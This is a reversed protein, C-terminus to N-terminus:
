KRKSEAPLAPSHQASGLDAISSPTSAPMTFIVRGQECVTLGGSLPQNRPAAASLGCEDTKVSPAFQNPFATQVIQGTKSSAATRYSTSNAGLALTARQWGMRWGVLTGLLLASAIVLIGLVSVTIDAKVSKRKGSSSASNSKGPDLRFPGLKVPNPKSPDFNSTRSKDQAAVDGVNQASSAPEKAPVTAAAEWNQSRSSVIRNTLAQL